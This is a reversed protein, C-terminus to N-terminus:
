LRSPSLLLVTEPCHRNSQQKFPSNADGVAYVISNQTEDLDREVDDCFLVDMEFLRFDFESSAISPHRWFRKDCYHPVHFDFEEYNRYFISLSLDNLEHSIRLCVEMRCRSIRKPRWRSSYIRWIQKQQLHWAETLTLNSSSYQAALRWKGYFPTFNMRDVFTSIVFGALALHSLFDIM